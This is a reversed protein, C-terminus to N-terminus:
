QRAKIKENKPRKGSRPKREPYSLRGQKNPSKQRIRNKGTALTASNASASSKPDLPYSRPPELGGERVLDESPKEWFLPATAASIQYLALAKLATLGSFM